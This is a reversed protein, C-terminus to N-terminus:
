VRMGAVSTPQHGATLRCREGPAHMSNWCIRKRTMRATVSPSNMLSFSRMSRTASSARSASVRVPIRPGFSASAPKALSGAIMTAATNTSDAPRDAVPMVSRMPAPMPRAAPPLSHRVMATTMGAVAASAANECWTITVAIISGMRIRMARSCFSAADRRSIGMDSAADSPVVSVSNLAGANRNDLSRILRASRGASSMKAMVGMPMASTSSPVTYM